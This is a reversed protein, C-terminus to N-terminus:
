ARGRAARSWEADVGSQQASTALNRYSPRKAVRGFPTSVSRGGGRRGPTRGRAAGLRAWRSVSLNSKNCALESQVREDKDEIAELASVIAETVRYAHGALSLSAGYKILLENLEHSVVSLQDLGIDERGILRDLWELPRRLRRTVWRRGPLIRRRAFSARRQRAALRSFATCPSTPASTTERDLTLLMAAEGIIDPLIAAAGNPAPLQDCLLDAIPGADGSRHLTQRVIGIAEILAAREM